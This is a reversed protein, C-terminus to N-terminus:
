GRPLALFVPCQKGSDPRRNASGVHWGEDSDEVPVEALGSIRDSQEKVVLFTADQLDDEFRGEVFDLGSKAGDVLAVGRQQLEQGLRIQWFRGLKGQGGAIGDVRTQAM